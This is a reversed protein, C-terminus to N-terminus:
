RPNLLFAHTQGQFIGYGVIEGADNIGTAQTLVWGSRAPILNNLDKAGSGRFIVAHYILYGTNNRISAQGVVVGANNIADGESYSGSLVGLDTMQGNDYLFAHAGGNGSIYAQGTIQGSDNIANARSYDGGLTGLETMAGKDYLFGRFVGTTTYAYGVVQGINNIGYAASYEGGLAGLDQLNGNQYLFAHASNTPTILAGAVQRSDNIANAFYTAAGLDTM